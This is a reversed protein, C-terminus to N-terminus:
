RRHRLDDNGVGAIDGRQCGTVSLGTFRGAFTQAKGQDLETGDASVWGGEEDKSLEFGAIPEVAGDEDGAEADSAPDPQAGAPVADGPLRRLATM